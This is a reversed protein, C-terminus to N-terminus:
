EWGVPRAGYCPNNFDEEDRAGIIIVQGAEEETVTFYGVWWWNYIRVYCEPICGTEVDIADVVWQYTPVGGAETHDDYVDAFFVWGLGREESWCPDKTWSHRFSLCTLGDISITDLAHHSDYSYTCYAWEDDGQEQRWGVILVWDGEIGSKLEAVEIYMAMSDLSNSTDPATTHGFMQLPNNHYIYDVTDSYACVSDSSDDVCAFNDEGESPTMNNAYGDLDPLLVCSDVYDGRAQGAGLLILLCLLALSLIRNQM